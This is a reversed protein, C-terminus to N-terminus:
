HCDKNFVRYHNPYRLLYLVFAELIHPQAECSTLKTHCTKDCTEELREFLVKYLHGRGTHGCSNNSCSVQVCHLTNVNLCHLDTM